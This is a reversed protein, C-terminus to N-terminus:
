KRASRLRRNAAKIRALQAELKRATATMAAHEQIQRESTARALRGGEAEREASERWRKAAAEYDAAHKKWTALESQVASREREANQRRIFEDDFRREWEQADAYYTASNREATLLRAHLEGTLRAINALTETEARDTSM